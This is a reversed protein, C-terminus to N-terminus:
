PQNLRLNQVQRTLSMQKKAFNRKNRKSNKNKPRFNSIHKNNSLSVLSLTLANDNVRSSTKNVDNDLNSTINMVDNDLSSSSSMLDEEMVFIDETQNYTKNDIEERESDDDKELEDEESLDIDMDSFSDCASSPSLSLLESGSSSYSASSPSVSLLDTGSDSTEEEDVDRHLTM